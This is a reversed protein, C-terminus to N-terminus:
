GARALAAVRRSVARTLRHVQEGANTTFSNYKYPDFEPEVNLWALNGLGPLVAARRKWGAAAAAAHIGVAPSVLVLSAPMPTTKREIADLTFNMALTAGTSYGVVHVPQRGVRQALHAAALDVAAAMDEWRVGLLGSPATGHGPLRLGVVWYNRRNLEEGLARLSYPSDSMGHLLLVGGIPSDAPLEFSRNWNPERVQPDSPSGKRYRLLNAGPGADADLYVESELQRFLRDELELYDGFNRIEDARSARYDETLVVTHWPGLAPGSCGLLLSM